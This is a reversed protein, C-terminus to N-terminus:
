SAKVFRDDVLDKPAPLPLIQPSIKSWIDIAKQLTAYVNDTANADFYKKNRAKDYFVVYKLTDAFDKPNQLFGGVGKAMITTSEDPNSKMYDLAKFYANVVAQVDKPRNQVTKSDFLVVDVILGPAQTTDILVHNSSSKRVESLYPEYTVAADVKGALLAAGADSGLMDVHQIDAETLGNRKLIVNLFFQATAGTEYGIKKGKLDAVTKISNNVAIGDGGLSDDLAVVIKYNINPIHYSITADVVEAIGDIRGAALSAFQQKFDQQQVLEVNVGEQTFFGKDRALYLPGYGVWVTSAIKLAPAGLGQPPAAASTCGSLTMGTVVAFIAIGRVSRASLTM